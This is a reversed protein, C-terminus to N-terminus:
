RVMLAWALCGVSATSTIARVTNWLTWASDFRTVVDVPDAIATPDGAAALADNLPVNLAITIVATVLAFVFAAITAGLGPRGGLHLAMGVGALLPAGLFSAVFWPNIIAVNIQQMAAVFVRPDGLRLGPLVSCSFAYYVGAQLACALAAAILVAGRLTDTM